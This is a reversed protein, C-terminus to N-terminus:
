LLDTSYCYQVCNLYKTVGGANSESTPLSKDIALYVVPLMPNEIYRFTPVTDQDPNATADAFDSLSFIIESSSKSDCLRNQRHPPKRDHNSEASFDVVQLYM